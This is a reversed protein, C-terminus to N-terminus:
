HRTSTTGSRSRSVKRFSFFGALASFIVLFRFDGIRWVDASLRVGGRAGEDPAPRETHQSRLLVAILVASLLFSGADVLLAGRPALAAVALGGAGFGIVQAAQSAIM